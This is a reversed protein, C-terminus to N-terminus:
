MAVILDSYCHISFGKAASQIRTFFLAQYERNSMFGAFYDTLGALDAGFGAFNRYDAGQQLFESQFLLFNRQVRM